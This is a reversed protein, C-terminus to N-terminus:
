LKGDPGVVKQLQLGQPGVVKPSLPPCQDCPMRTISVECNLVFVFIAGNGM